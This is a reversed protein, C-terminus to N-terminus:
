SLTRILPFRWAFKLVRQTIKAPSRFADTKFLRAFAFKTDSSIIQNLLTGHTQGWGPAM